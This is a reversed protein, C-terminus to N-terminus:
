AVNSLEKEPTIFLRQVYLLRSLSYEMSNVSNSQNGGLLHVVGKEKDIRQIIAVHGWSKGRRFVGVDGPLWTEGEKWNIRRGSHQWSRALATAGKNTEPDIIACAQKAILHMFISCWAVEGDDRAWSFVRENYQRIMQLIWPNSKSGPVEKQGMYYSVHFLLKENAM